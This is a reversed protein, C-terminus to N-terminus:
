ELCATTRTVVYSGNSTEDAALLRNEEAIADKKRRFIRIGPCGLAGDMIDIVVHLDDLSRDKNM